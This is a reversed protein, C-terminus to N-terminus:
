NANLLAAGAATRLLQNFPSLLREQDATQKACLVTDPTACQAFASGTGAMVALMVVLPIVSIGLARFTSGGPIRPTVTFGDHGSRVRGDKCGRHRCLHGPCARGHRTHPWRRVYFRLASPILLRRKSFNDCGLNQGATAMAMCAVVM